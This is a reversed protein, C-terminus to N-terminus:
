RDGHAQLVRKRACSWRALDLLSALPPASPQFDVGNSTKFKVTQQKV